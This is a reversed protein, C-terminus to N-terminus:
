GRPQLSECREAVRPSHTLTEWCRRRIQTAIVACTRRQQQSVTPTNAGNRQPATPARVRILNPPLKDIGLLDDRDVRKVALDGQEALLARKKANAGGRGQRTEQCGARSPVGKTHRAMKNGTGATSNHSAGSPGARRGRERPEAGQLALPVDSGGHRHAVEGHRRTVKDM